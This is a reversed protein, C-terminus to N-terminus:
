AIGAEIEDDAPSRVGGPRHRGHRGGHRARWVAVVMAGLGLVPALTWTATNLIPVLGIAALIAWGSLFATWRGRPARVGSAM